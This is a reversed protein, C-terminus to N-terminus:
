VSSVPDKPEPTAPTLFQEFEDAPVPGSFLFGQMEDCGQENLFVAQAELDVGEAAVARGVAGVRDVGGDLLGPDIM